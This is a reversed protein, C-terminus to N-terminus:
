EGDSANGEVLAGRGAALIERSLAADDVARALMLAGVITAYSRMAKSRRLEPPDSAPMAEELQQIMRRVGETVEQRVAPDARVIDPGLAAMVCGDGPEDRHLDSLVADALTQLACGGPTRMLEQYGALNSSLGLACAERVLDQKSRFQNYFAGHTLGAERMVDAVGVGHVGRERLLRAAVRLVRMRNEDAQKRSVKM